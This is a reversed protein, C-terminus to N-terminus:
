EDSGTDQNLVDAVILAYSIDYFRAVRQKYKSDVLHIETQSRNAVLKYRRGTNIQEIMEPSYIFRSFDGGTGYGEVQHNVSDGTLIAWLQKFM